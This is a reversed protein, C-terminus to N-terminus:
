KKIVITKSSVCWAGFYGLAGNNLNTNPNAPASSGNMMGMAPGLRSGDSTVVNKLTLYYDYTEKSISFLEIKVTDKEHMIQMGRTAPLQAALGDFLKDDYLMYDQGYEQDPGSTNNVWVKVRYYNKIGAPDNFYMNVMYGKSKPNDFLAFNLSDLEAKFPITNTATYIKGATEVVIQYTEGPLHPMTKGIFNGNTSYKLTDPLGNTEKIIVLADSITKDNTEDYFGVSQSLRVETQTNGEIVASEIILQSETGNLPLQIVEECSSLFFSLFSLPYIYKKM